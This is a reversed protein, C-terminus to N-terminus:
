PHCGVSITRLDTYTCVSVSRGTSLYRDTHHSCAAELGVSSRVLPADVAFLALGGSGGSPPDVMVLVPSMILCGELVGAPVTLFRSGLSDDM